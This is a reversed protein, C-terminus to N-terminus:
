EKFVEILETIKLLYINFLVTWGFVDSFVSLCYEIKKVCLQGFVLTTGAVDVYNGPQFHSAYLPMGPPLQANPTVLFKSM